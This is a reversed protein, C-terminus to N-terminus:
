ICNERCWLITNMFSNKM